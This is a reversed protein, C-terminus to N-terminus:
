IVDAFRREASQFYRLGSVLTVLTVAVSVALPAGPWPGQLVSWRLGTVIGAMPNLYYVYRWAGTVSSAPYAIPSLFFLLQLLVALLPGADRYRVNLTAFCLGLSFALVVLGAVWVPLTLLAPGPLVRFWAMAVLLPLASVAFDVLGPVVAALPAALRPFYVKTILDSSGVLSAAAGGVSGSFYSWASYGLLAFPVYPVGDSSVNVVRDFVITLTAAGVIPRVVAWGVGLVAQKYRV